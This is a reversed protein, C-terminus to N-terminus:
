RSRAVLSIAMARLDDLDFPKDLYAAGLAFVRGRVDDDGFGTMILIPLDETAFRISEVAEIGDLGPMCVDAIVLDVGHGGQAEAELLPLVVSLLRRGDPVELVEFGDRRLARVIDERFARDDEAVVARMRRPALRPSPRVTVPETRPTEM